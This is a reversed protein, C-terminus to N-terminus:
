RTTLLNLMSSPSSPYTSPGAKPEARAQVEEGVHVDAAGGVGRPGSWCTRGGAWTYAWAQSGHGHQSRVNFFSFRPVVTGRRHYSSVVREYARVRPLDPTLDARNIVSVAARLCRDAVQYVPRGAVGSLPSALEPGPNHSICYFLCSM